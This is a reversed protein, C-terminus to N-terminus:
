HMKKQLDIMAQQNTKIFSHQIRDLDVIVTTLAAFALILPISVILHRSHSIGARVGMTVMTLSSIAFLTMWISSPIRNHLTTVLRTEHMVMLEKVSQILLLSSKKYGNKGLSVVESWLQEQLVLSRETYKKLQDRDSAAQLRVGVYEKLYQKVKTKVPEDVLDAYLYATTIINADDLANKKRVKHEAASMALSFALVFGLMALLGTVMPNIAGAAGTDSSKNTHKSIFYGLEFSLLILAVIALYFFYIPFDDFLGTNM